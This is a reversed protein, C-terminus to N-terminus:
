VIGDEVVNLVTKYQGAFSSKADEAVASSRLAIRVGRGKDWSVSRFTQFASEEIDPPIQADM